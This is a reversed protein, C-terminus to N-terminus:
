IENNNEMIGMQYECKYMNLKKSVDENIDFIEQISQVITDAEPREAVDKLTKTPHHLFSNFAYHLIKEVSKQYEQPIGGKKFARELEKQSCEKAKDRLHKIIPDVSM